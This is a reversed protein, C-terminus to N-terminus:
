RKGKDNQTAGKVAKAIVFFEEMFEKILSAPKRGEKQAIANIIESTDKNLYIQYKM